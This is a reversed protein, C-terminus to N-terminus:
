QEMENNADEIQSAQTILELEHSAPHSMSITDKCSSCFDMEPNTCDKCHYRAGIIPEMGCGDCKYGPHELAQAKIEDLQHKLRMYEQYDESDKLEDDVELELEDEEMIQGIPQGEGTSSGNKNIVKLLKSAQQRNAEADKKTQRLKKAMLKHIRNSVQSATRTGLAQAIKAYRRSNVPEEPYVLLLEELRRKEEDSWPLNYHAAVLESEGLSVRHVRQPRPQQHQALSAKSTIGSVSAISGEGGVGANEFFPTTRGSLSAPTDSGSMVFSPAPATSPRAPYGAIEFFRERVPM